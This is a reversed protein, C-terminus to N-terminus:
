RKQEVKGLERLLAIQLEAFEARASREETQRARIMAGAAAAVEELRDAVVAERAVISLQEGELLMVGGDVAAFHEQANEERYLLVCPSLLTLFAQHGPLLGFRGSADEAQLSVIRSRAVVADPVLIELEMSM